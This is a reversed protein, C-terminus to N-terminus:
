LSDVLNRGRRPTAPRFPLDLKRSLVFCGLVRRHRLKNRAVASTSDQRGGGCVGFSAAWLQPAGPGILSAADPIGHPAGPDCLKSGGGGLVIRYRNTGLSIPALSVPSSAPFPYAAGCRQERAAPATRRTRLERRAVRREAFKESNEQGQTVSFAPPHDLGPPSAGRRSALEGARRELGPSLHREAGAVRRSLAQLEGVGSDVERIGAVRFSGPQPPARWFSLPRFAPPPVRAEPPRLRATGAGGPRASTSHLKSLERAQKGERM